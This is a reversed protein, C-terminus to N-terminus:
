ATGWSSATLNTVAKDRADLPSRDFIAMRGREPTKTWFRWLFPRFREEETPPRTTYVTFGRSDFCMLLKNILTGKGAGSWGEFVVVVPINLDRAQRQLEGLKLELDPVTSEFEAKKTKSTLDVKELM